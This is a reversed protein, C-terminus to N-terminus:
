VSLRKGQRINTDLIDLTKAGKKAVSNTGDLNIHKTRLKKKQHLLRVSQTFARDFSGDGSWRNFWKWIATHNIEKKGTASDIKIPISEWQCGTHLQYLIYNFIRWLPVKFKRSRRPLSLFPLFFANFEKETLKIPLTNYKKSQKLQRQSLKGTNHM